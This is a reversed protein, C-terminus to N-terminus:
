EKTQKGIRKKKRRLSSTRRRDEKMRQQVSHKLTMALTREQQRMMLKFMDKTSISEDDEPKPKPKEAKPAKNGESDKDSVELREDEEYWQYLEDGQEQETWQDEYEKNKMKEAHLERGLDKTRQQELHWAKKQQQQEEDRRM